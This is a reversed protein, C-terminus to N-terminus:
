ARWTNSLFNNGFTGIFRAYAPHREGDAHYARFTLDVVNKVRTGFTSSRAHFYRPDEGWLAGVSAQIANGTSVGTLRMGYRKAFGEWHPGYERPNNYATGIAASFLGGTLSKPGGTSYLFWSVREEPTIPHYQFAGHPVPPSHHRMIDDDHPQAPASGSQASASACGFCVCAVVATLLKCHRKV